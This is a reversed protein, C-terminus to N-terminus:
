MAPSTSKLPLHAEQFLVFRGFIKACTLSPSLSATNMTIKKYLDDWPVSGLISQDSLRVPPPLVKLMLVRMLGALDELM